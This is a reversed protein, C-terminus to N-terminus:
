NRRVYVRRKLEPAYEHALLPGPAFDGSISPFFVLRREEYNEPHIGSLVEDPVYTIDIEQAHKMGEKYIGAGGILWNDLESYESLAEPLDLFVETGKPPTPDLTRSVIINKRGPLARGISEWTKRGMIIAGGM